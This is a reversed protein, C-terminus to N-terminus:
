HWHQDIWPENHNEIKNSSNAFHIMKVRPDFRDGLFYDNTDDISHDWYLAIMDNELQSDSYKGFWYEPLWSRELTVHQDIFNQEGNLQGYALRNNIYYSQWYSPNSNFKAYLDVTDGQYFMQFGGNIKCGNHRQLEAYSWWRLHCGFQGQALPWDLIQDINQVIVYDIDLILCKGAITPMNHFDIKYFQAKVHDRLKLDITRVDSIIGSRDDTYCYMIFPVNTNRKISNYLKNIYDAGYKVGVKLTLINIM